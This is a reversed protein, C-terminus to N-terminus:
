RNGEENDEGGELTPLSKHTNLDISVREDVGEAYVTLVGRAYDIDTSVCALQPYQRQTLFRNEKARDVIMYARDYLLGKSSVASSQLSIGRCSKIPYVTLATVTTETRVASEKTEKTRRHSYLGYAVLATALAVALGTALQQTPPM